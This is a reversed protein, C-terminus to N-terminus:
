SGGAGRPARRWRRAWARMRSCPTGGAIEGRLELHLLAVALLGVEAATAGDGAGARPRRLRRRLWRGASRWLAAARLGAGRRAAGRRRRGARRSRALLDFEFANHVAKLVEAVAAAARM